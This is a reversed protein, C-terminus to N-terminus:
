EYLVVLPVTYNLSFHGYSDDCYYVHSAPSSDHFIASGGVLRSQGNKWVVLRYWNATDKNNCVSEWSEGNAIRQAWELAQEVWVANHDGLRSAMKKFQEVTQSSWTKKPMMTKFNKGYKEPNDKMEAFAELILQRMEEQRNDKKKKEFLKQDITQPKVEFWVDETPKQAVKTTTTQQTTESSLHNEIIAILEKESFTMERGNVQLTVKM